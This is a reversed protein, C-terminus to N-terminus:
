HSSLRVKGDMEKPGAHSRRSNKVGPYPHFPFLTVVKLLFNRFILIKARRIAPNVPQSRGALIDGMPGTTGVAAGAAAAVMTGASGFATVGVKSIL